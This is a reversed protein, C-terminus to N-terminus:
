ATTRMPSSPDVHKDYNKLATYRVHNLTKIEPLTRYTPGCGWATTSDRGWRAGIFPCSGAGKYKKDYIKKGDAQVCYKYSEDGKDVLRALLRRHGRARSRAPPPSPASRRCIPTRGCRRSRPVAAAASASIATSTATPGRTLLMGAGPDGRLPYPKTPDIDTILLAMTGPGLDMYAEQLAM